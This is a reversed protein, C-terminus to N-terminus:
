RVLVQKVKWTANCFFNGYPVLLPFFISYGHKEEVVQLVPAIASEFLDLASAKDGGEWLGVM